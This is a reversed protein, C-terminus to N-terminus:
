WGGERLASTIEEDTINHKECTYPTPVHGGKRTRTLAIKKLQQSSKPPNKWETKTKTYKNRANLSLTNKNQRYYERQYNPDGRALPRLTNLNAGHEEYLERERCIADDNSMECTDLIEFIFNEIGGNERIARYLPIDSDRAKTRHVAWRARPDKTRGIYCTNSPVKTTIKYFFHTYM